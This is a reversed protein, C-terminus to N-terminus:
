WWLLVILVAAAALAVGAAVWLLRQATSQQRTVTVASPAHSDDYNFAFEVRGFRVQDGPKLPSVTQKKGNVFTGNTSLLNLVRWGDKESVIKAHSSSVSSENLVIDNDPARGITTSGVKLTFRQGRFPPNIGLLSPQKTAPRLSGIGKIKTQELEAANFVMTGQPGESQKKPIGAMPKDINSGPTEDVM